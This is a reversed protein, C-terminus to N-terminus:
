LQEGFYELADRLNRAPVAGLREALSLNLEFRPQKVTYNVSRGYINCVLSVLGDISYVGPYGFHIANFGTIPARVLKVISEAADEVHIAAWLIGAEPLRPVHLGHKLSYVLNYVLGDRRAPGFLGPLRIVLAHRGDAKLCLEAQWKGRGYASTPDGADQEVIPRNREKGYITVSSILVVPCNSKALVTELMRQSAHASSSDQYEEHTKPVHAACHLICDPKVRYILREVEKEVLLDCYIINEDPRRGTSVVEVGDARLARVVQAGLFGQAGTVLYRM